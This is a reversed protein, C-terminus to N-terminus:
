VPAEPLKVAGTASSDRAGHRAPSPTLRSKPALDDELASPQVGGYEHSASTHRRQRRMALAVAGFALVAVLASIGM